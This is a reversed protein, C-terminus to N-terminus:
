LEDQGNNLTQDSRLGKGSMVNGMPPGVGPSMEDPNMMNEDEEPIPDNPNSRKSKMGPSNQQVDLSTNHRLGDERSTDIILSQGHMANSGM